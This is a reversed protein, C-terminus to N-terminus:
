THINNIITVIQAFKDRLSVGVMNMYPRRHRSAISWLYNLLKCSCYKILDNYTDTLLWSWYIGKSTSFNLKQWIDTKKPIGMQAATMSKDPSSFWRACRKVPQASRQGVPWNDVSVMQCSDVCVQM